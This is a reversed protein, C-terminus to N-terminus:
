FGGGFRNQLRDMRMRNYTSPQASALTNGVYAGYGSNEDGSFASWTREDMINPMPAQPPPLRFNQQQQQGGLLGPYFGGGPQMPQFDQLGQSTGQPLLGQQPLMPPPAVGAGSPMGQTQWPSMRWPAQQAAEWQQGGSWPQQQTIPLGAWPAPQGWQSQNM